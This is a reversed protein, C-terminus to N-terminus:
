QVLSAYILARIDSGFSDIQPADMDQIMAVVVVDEKPDIWFATGAAGGWFFTGDSGITGLNAANKIIGFGLGWGMGGTSDFSSTSVIPDLTNVGDVVSHDRAMYRVTQPSLFRKGGFNGGNAMMQAFRWYDEVTGTLGYAGGKHAMDRTYSNINNAELLFGEPEPPCGNASDCPVLKGGKSWHVPVLRDVRSSTVWYSADRMGLPAFLRAELFHDFSMGSLIEVLRAEVDPAISYQFALGPQRRLPITALRRVMEQLPVDLGFLDAKLYARGVADTSDGHTFGATHRLLDHITPERRAPVTDSLASDPNRLVRVDKFEPIYKSVPDDLQFKGEEYLMMLATAAIPKTMSYWRFIADKRMKVKSVTNAYGVASEHVVKGHRAVLLVLGSFEGKDTKEQYFRDIYNLRDSSFGVSEPSAFPIEQAELRHLSMMVALILTISAFRFLKM